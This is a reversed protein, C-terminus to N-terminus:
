QDLNIKSFEKFSKLIQRGTDYMSAENKLVAINEEFLEGVRNWLVPEVKWFEVESNLVANLLDGEYFDGEALINKELEQIALPILYKLGIDQGIMIRLDEIEFQKLQKKRLAHCTTILYSSEDPASWTEKELSELSKDLWREDFSLKSRNTKSRSM